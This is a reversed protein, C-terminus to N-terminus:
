TIDYRDAISETVEFVYDLETYMTKNKIANCEM